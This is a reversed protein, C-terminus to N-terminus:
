QAKRADCEQATPYEISSKGYRLNFCITTPLISVVAFFLKAFGGLDAPNTFIKYTSEISCVKIALTSCCMQFFILIFALNIFVFVSKVLRQVKNKQM